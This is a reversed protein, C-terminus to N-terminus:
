AKGNLLPLIRSLDPLSGLVPLDLYRAADRESKFSPNFWEVIGTVILAIGLSVALVWLLPIWRYSRWLARKGVIEVAGLSAEPDRKTGPMRAQIALRRAFFQVMAAGLDRDRGQYLILAYGQPSRALRMEDEVRRKLPVNQDEEPRLFGENTLHRKLLLMAFNTEFFDQARKYLESLVVMEGPKPGLAVATTEKLHVEQSIVFQDEMSAAVILYGGVPIFVLLLWAKHKKLAHVYRKLFFLM